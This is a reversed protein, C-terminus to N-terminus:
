HSNTASSFGPRAVLNPRKVASPLRQSPGSLRFASGGMVGGSKRSPCGQQTPIAKYPLKEYRKVLNKVSQAAWSRVRTRVISQVTLM